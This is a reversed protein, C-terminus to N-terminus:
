SYNLEPVRQPGSAKLLPFDAAKSCFRYAAIFSSLAKACGLSPTGCRADWDLLSIGTTVQFVLSGSSRSCCVAPKTM